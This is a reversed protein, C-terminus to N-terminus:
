IIECVSLSLLGSWNFIKSNKYVTYDCSYIHLSSSHLVCYQCPLLHGSPRVGKGKERIACISLAPITLSRVILAIITQVITSIASVNVACM